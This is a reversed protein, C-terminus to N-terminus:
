VKRRMMGPSRPLSQSAGADCPSRSGVECPSRLCHVCCDYAAPEDATFPGFRERAAIYCHTAIQIEGSSPLEGRLVAGLRGRVPAFGHGVRLHIDDEDGGGVIHEGTDGQFRHAPSLMNEHFLRARTFSRLQLKDLGRRGARSRKDTNAEIVTVM